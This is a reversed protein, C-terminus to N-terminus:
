DFWCTKPDHHGDYCEVARVELSAADEKLIKTTLDPRFLELAEAAEDRTAYTYRGQQPFTLTRPKDKPKHTLVYRTPM